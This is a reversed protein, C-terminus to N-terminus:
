ITSGSRIRNLYQVEIEKSIVRDENLGHITGDKWLPNIAFKIFSVLMIVILVSNM